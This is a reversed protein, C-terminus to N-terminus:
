GSLTSNGLIRDKKVWYCTQIIPGIYIYLTLMHTFMAYVGTHSIYIYIYIYIYTTYIYIFLHMDIGSHYIYTYIRM